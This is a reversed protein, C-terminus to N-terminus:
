DPTGFKMLPWVRFVIKGVIQEEAVCGVATNRSDVSTSRHDGMCFYRSEPVQYPLKINCDRLAKETMKGVMATKLIRHMTLDPYRRIPSTFHCYRRSALGFHGSNVTSYKAKQMTRLMVDNILNFYPTQEAKALADQLVSSCIERSHKVDIGVGKMLAMLTELKEEDPKDHVRYVFPLGLETAYDAVSENAVIMFEEILQHAFTHEYPKVDVVRGAGDYVFYVERGAFDINGRQDRKKQLIKALKQMTQLTPTANPLCKTATM